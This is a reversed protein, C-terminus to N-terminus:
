LTLSWIYFTEHVNMFRPDQAYCLCCCVDVHNVCVKGTHISELFLCVQFVQLYFFLVFIMTSLKFTFTERCLLFTSKVKFHAMDVVTITVEGQLPLLKIKVSQEFENSQLTPSKLPTSGSWIKSLVRCLNQHCEVHPIWVTVKISEIPQSFWGNATWMSDERELCWCDALCGHLWGTTLHFHIEM